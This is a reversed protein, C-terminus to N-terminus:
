FGYNIGLGFVERTQFGEFANDDYIAQLALNASLYKNIKMVVNVTYDIDVNQPDELYNSYLNLINEITVNEMLEFKYYSSLAAGLEYRSTEGQEVGFAPGNVTLHDHVFVFKSTAPAINVKLNDHKKWLMGPGFQLYAPSFFHSLQNGAGDYTAEMQTKFNAFASYYWYGEAKKGALSNFEFRDDTKQTEQGKLKTLGYSAIIKNDWTWDGKLYNFDYNLGLNGAINNTGGALWNNFASQNFLFTINGSKKWGEKPEEKKDQASVTLAGFLVAIALLKKM